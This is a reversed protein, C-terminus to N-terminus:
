SKEPLSILPIRTSMAIKEVSSRKFMGEILGYDHRLMALIQVDNEEVYEMIAEIPSEHVIFDYKHPIRKLFNEMVVGSMSQEMNVRSDGQMINLVSLKVNFSKVLAILYEYSDFDRVKKFDTALTINKIHKYSAKQPIVMVPCLANKIVGSATSGILMEKIGSAGTTGMFISSASSREAFNVISGISDGHVIHKEFTHGPFNNSECLRKYVRDLDDRIGQEQKDKLSGIGARSHKMDFVNLFIFRTPQNRLLDMSYMAAHVSNDSFDLPILVKHM